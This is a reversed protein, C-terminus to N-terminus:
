SKELVVSGCTTMVLTELDEIIRLGDGSVLSPGHICVVPFQGADIVALSLNVM